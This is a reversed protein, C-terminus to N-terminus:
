GSVSVSPPAPTPRGYTARPPHAPAAPAAAPAAPAASAAAPSQGREAALKDMLMVWTERDYELLEIVEDAKALDKEFSAEVLRNFMYTYLGHLRSCLAPDIEHRLSNMLEVLINRTNTFQEYVQEWNKAALADRGARCFHVAGELLMLRLQEPSATLVKTRFYPNNVDFAM